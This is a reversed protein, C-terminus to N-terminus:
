SLSRGGLFPSAKNSQSRLSHGCHLVTYAHCLIFWIISAINPVRMTRGSAYIGDM